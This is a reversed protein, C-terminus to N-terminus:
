YLTLQYIDDSALDLMYYNVLIPLMKENIMDTNSQSEKLIYRIMENRSMCFIHYNFNSIFEKCSTDEKKTECKELKIIVTMITFLKLDKISSNILFEKFSDKEVNEIYDFNNDFFEPNQFEQVNKIDNIIENKKEEITKADSTKNCPYNQECKSKVNNFIFNIHNEDLSDLYKRFYDYIIFDFYGDLIRSKLEFKDSIQPSETYTLIFNKLGEHDMKDLNQNNTRGTNNLYYQVNKALKLIDRKFYFDYGNDRNLYIIRTDNNLCIIDFIKKNNLEPFLNILRFLQFVYSQIHDDTTKLTNNLIYIFNEVDFSTQINKRQFYGCLSYLIKMITEIVDPEGISYFLETLYKHPTIDNDLGVIKIFIDPEFYDEFKTYFFDFMELIDNELYEDLFDYKMGGQVGNIHYQNRYYNEYKKLWVKLYKIDTARLFDFINNYYGLYNDKKEILFKKNEEFFVSTKPPGNNYLIDIYYKAKLLLKDNNLLEIVENKINEESHVRYSEIYTKEEYYIWVLSKVIKKLQSRTLRSMYRTFNDKKLDGIELFTNKDQLVSNKNTDSLILEYLQDDKYRYFNFLKKDYISPIYNQFSHINYAYRLLLSRETSEIFDKLEGYKLTIESSSIDQFIGKSYLEPYLSLGWNLIRKKTSNNIKNIYEKLGRLSKTQNNQRKYYQELILLKGNLEAANMHITFEYYIIYTFNRLEIRYMFDDINDIFMAKNYLAIMQHLDKTDINMLNEHQNFNNFDDSSKNLINYVYNEVGYIINILEERSKNQYYDEVTKFNINIRNLVIKDFDKEFEEKYENSKNKLYEIITENPLFNVYDYIGDIRNNKIRDFKDINVAFNILFNRPIQNSFLYDSNNYYFLEIEDMKKVFERLEISSNNFYDCYFDTMKNMLTSRKRDQLSEIAYNRNVDASHIGKNELYIVMNWYIQRIRDLTKDNFYNRFEGLTMKCKVNPLTFTFILLFFFIKNIILNINKRM